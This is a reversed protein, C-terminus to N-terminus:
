AEFGWTTWADRKARAFMELRENAGHAPSMSEVLAYFEEPKKSHKGRPWQFWTTETIRSEKLSGRRAYLCFETTLRYADGLGVGHPKKAWVLLVSPKFGWARAIDYAHEVYRNTTWLYLHSDDAALKEVPLARISDLSMQDYALADHGSEGDGGFVNPGTDLQWPPDAVICRYEGAPLPPTPPILGLRNRILAVLARRSKRWEDGTLEAENGRALIRFDSRTQDHSVEDHHPNSKGPKAEGLLEGIRAEVRRMAGEMPAKLEKSRLYANLAAAQSQWERLVEVDDIHPLREAVVAEIRQVTEATIATGRSPVLPLLNPSVLDNM